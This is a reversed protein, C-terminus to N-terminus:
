TFKRKLALWAGLILEEDQAPTIIAYSVHSQHESNIEESENNFTAVMERLETYEGVVLAKAEASLDNYCRVAECLQYFRVEHSENKVAELMEMKKLFVSIDPLKAIAESVTVAGCVTCEKHRQGYSDKTPETDTIWEGDTHALPETIDGIYNHGCRCIYTTYGESTCTPPTIQADYSHGLPPITDYKVLHCTYCECM